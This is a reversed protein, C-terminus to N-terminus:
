LLPGISVRLDPLLEEDQDLCHVVAEQLTNSASGTPEGEVVRCARNQRAASHVCREAHRDRMGGARLAALPTAKEAALLARVDQLQRTQAMAENLDVKLTLACDARGADYLLTPSDSSLGREFETMAESFSPIHNEPAWAIAQHFLEGEEWFVQWWLRGEAVYVWRGVGPVQGRGVTITLGADENEAEVARALTM